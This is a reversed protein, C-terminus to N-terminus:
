VFWQCVYAESPKKKKERELSLLLKSPDCWSRGASMWPSLLSVPAFVLGLCAASAAPRGGGRGGGPPPREAPLDACGLGSSGWPPCRRRRRRGEEPTPLERFPGAVAGPFRFWRSRAVARPLPVSRAAAAWRLEARSSAAQVWGARGVPGPGSGVCRAAERGAHGAGRGSGAEQLRAPSAPRCFCRRPAWRRAAAGLGQGGPPPRRPASAHPPPPRSVPAPTAAARETAPSPAAAAGSAPPGRFLFVDPFCRFTSAPHEKFITVGPIKAPTTNLVLEPRNRHPNGHRNKAAYGSWRHNRKKAGTSLRPQPNGQGTVTLPVSVQAFRAESSKRPIDLLFTEEGGTIERLRVSNLRWSPKTNKM